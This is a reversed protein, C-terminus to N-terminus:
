MLSPLLPKHWRTSVAGTTLSLVVRDIIDWPRQSRELSHCPLWYMSQGDVHLQRMCDMVTVMMFSVFLNSHFIIFLIRYPPTSTSALSLRRIRGGGWSSIFLNDTWTCNASASASLRSGMEVRADLPSLMCTTM